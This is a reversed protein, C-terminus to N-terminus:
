QDVVEAELQRGVTYYSHDARVPRAFRRQEAHNDAFLLGVRAAQSEALGYLDGVDVLRAVIEIRVALDPFRYRVAVVVHLQALDLGVTEIAARVGALPENCFVGVFRPLPRILTNRLSSVILAAQEVTVYRASKEYFIFGLMDTGAEAACHADELNTMGCIKIITM